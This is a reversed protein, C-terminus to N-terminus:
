TNVTEFSFALRFFAVGEEQKARQNPGVIPTHYSGPALLVKEEIMEMWIKTEWIGEPHEEGAAKLAKFTPNHSLYLKIWLFMGGKPASFSFMMSKELEDVSSGIGSPGHGKPFTVYDDVIGMKGMKMFEPTPCVDFEAFLIDCLWNRRATYVGRLGWFWRLLGEHGWGQKGVLQEIIAIPWGGPAQTTVETARLLRESFIPNCIFYGLRNGPGLTKSFTELRIVRGQYDLSVFSPVLSEILLEETFVAEGNPKGQSPSNSGNSGNPPSGNSLSPSSYEEMQLFYYPDDECIIVDWKVCIEYIEKKRELSLTSGTPNQGTPVIYLLTPRREGEWTSLIRELDGPVVGDKDLGVPVGRCGMPAWVAQASAYTHQEILIPDGPECLINIVKNWADTNGFNLLIEFDSYAPRFVRSVFNHLFSSLTPSGHATGYQLAASLNNPHGPSPHKLISIDMPSSSADQRQQQTLDTEPAYVQLQLSTYPFLSPHPLGGALSIMGPERMYKILDKLPSPVRSRSLTNLHHSLDISKPLNPKPKLENKHNIGTLETENEIAFPM